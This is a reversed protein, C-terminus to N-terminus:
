PNDGNYIHTQVHTCHLACPYTGEMDTDTVPRSGTLSPTDAGDGGSQLEPANVLKAM